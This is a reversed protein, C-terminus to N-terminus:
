TAGETATIEFNKSEAMCNGSVTCGDACSERRNMRKMEYYFVSCFRQNVSRIMIIKKLRKVYGVSKTRQIITLYVGIKYRQYDGIKLKEGHM